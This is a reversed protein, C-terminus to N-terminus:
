GNPVEMWRSEYLAVISNNHPTPDFSDLRREQLTEVAFSWYWSDGDVYLRNGLGTGSEQPIDVVAGESSTYPRVAFLWRGYLGPYGDALKRIHSVGAERALRFATEEHQDDM